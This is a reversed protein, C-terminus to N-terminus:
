WGFWRRLAHGRKEKRGKLLPAEENADESENETEARVDHEVADEVATQLLPADEPGRAVEIPGDSSALLASSADLPQGFDDIHLRHQRARWLICMILLSGQMVGAVAYPLWTTWNTDPRLAISLVMFVAGPSQILMMPISLAGVLKLRYTHILQPAYQLAALLASAVGLFTAWLSIQPSREPLDPTEASLLLFTVFTIFAIHIFVVWSLTISLRWADTKVSTKVHQPPRNDHLDVDVETFKLHPPYYIMYLVLIVTFFFWQLMLQIVGAVSEICSGFTVVRCCRVISWQMVIINLMGSASSTSGLLLFWPSFGESSGAKIIRLHQPLYSIALGVCLLATLVNATYDHHPTCIELM